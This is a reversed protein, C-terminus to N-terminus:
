YRHKMVGISIFVRVEGDDEESMIEPADDPSIDDGDMSIALAPEGIDRPSNLTSVTYGTEDGLRPTPPGTQSAVCGADGEVRQDAPAGTCITKM